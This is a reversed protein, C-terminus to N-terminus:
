PSAEQEAQGQAQGDGDLGLERELAHVGLEVVRRLVASRTTEITARQGVVSVLRDVRDIQEASLRASVHGVDGIHVCHVRHALDDSLDQHLGCAACLPPERRRRREATGQYCNSCPFGGDFDDFSSNECTSTIIKVITTM